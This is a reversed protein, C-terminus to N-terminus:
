PGCSRVRRRSRTPRAAPRAARQLQAVGDKYDGIFEKAFEGDRIEGLIKKMEARTAETIIRPGRTLDGYEATTSISYEMGAIGQEYMLDVILKVEHLCEFYAMEPQYGAEVLTEFGAKILATLGGCLM